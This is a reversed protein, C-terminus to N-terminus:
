LIPFCFPFVETGGNELPKIKNKQIVCLQVTKAVAAAVASPLCEGVNYVNLPFGRAWLETVSFYLTYHKSSLFLSFLELFEWFINCHWLLRFDSYHHKEFFLDSNLFRDFNSFFSKKLPSILMDPFVLIVSFFFPDFFTWLIM